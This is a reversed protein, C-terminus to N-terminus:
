ELQEYVNIFKKCLNPILPFVDKEPISSDLLIEGFSIINSAEELEDYIEKVEPVNNVLGIKLEKEAVEQELEFRKSIKSCISPAAIDLQDCFEITAETCDTLLCELYTEIDLLRYFEECFPNELYKAKTIHMNNIIKKSELNLKKLLVAIRRVLSHTPAADDIMQFLLEFMELIYEAQPLYTKINNELEDSVTLQNKM